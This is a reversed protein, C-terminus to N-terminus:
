RPVGPLLQYGLEVSGGPKLFSGAVPWQDSVVIQNDSHPHLELVNDQNIPGNQLNRLSETVFTDDPGSPQGEVTLVGSTISLADAESPHKGRFDPVVLSTPASPLKKPLPKAPVQFSALHCSQADRMCASAEFTIRDFEAALRNRDVTLADSDFPEFENHNQAQSLLIYDM